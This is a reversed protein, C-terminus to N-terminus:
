IGCQSVSLVPMSKYSLYTFYLFALFAIVPAQHCLLLIFPIFSLAFVPSFFSFPLVESQPTQRFTAIETLTWAIVNGSTITQWNSSHKVRSDGDRTKYLGDILKKNTVNVCRLKSLHKAANQTSRILSFICAHLDHGGM